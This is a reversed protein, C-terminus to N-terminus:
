ISAPFSTSTARAVEASVARLAVTEHYEQAEIDAYFSADPALDRVALEVEELNARFFEKRYNAANVRRSSFRQHLANELAPANDSYIIAHTDFSFPVSADGLERVRDTPDLRRTLGIKVVGEGFSGVNSIIYVFGSCTQEAMAKARDAREHAENLANELEQVRQQMGLIDGHASQEVESRAKALLKAYREEDAAARDADRELKAEERQIRKLESREDREEKVKERYEHTAYLEQLKTQLYSEEILIKQSENMKNIQEFAREIRKEMGTVNNWRTNAIAADCENNFARLTLRIARNTMTRGKAKSGDVTWDIRCVVASKASVMAKQSAKIKRIELKFKESDDFDFHPEYMGLEAFSLREDVIALEKRIGEYKSYKEAYERRVRAIDSRITNRENEASRVAAQIDTIPQLKELADSAHSTQDKVQQRARIWAAVAFPCLCALGLIVAIFVYAGQDANM